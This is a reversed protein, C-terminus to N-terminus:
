GSRSAGGADYASLYDFAADGANPADWVGRIVAVGRAGLQRLAAVHHPRVGGLAVVPVIVARAARVLRDPGREADDASGAELIRDLVVWSAGDAAAALVQEVSHASAGIRLEPGIARAQAPSLSTSTLQVARAGCALAIDVREYVVLWAGTAEQEAALRMALDHVTHADLRPARLHLALRSGARRMIAVADAVFSDRLVVKDTTVVHLPPVTAAATANGTADGATSIM